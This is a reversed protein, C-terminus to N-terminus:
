KLRTIAIAQKSQIIQYVPIFPRVYKAIIKLCKNHFLLFKYIRIQLSDTKLALLFGTLRYLGKQVKDNFRQAASVFNRKRAKTNKLNYISFGSHAYIRLGTLLNLDGSGLLRFESGALKKFFGNFLQNLLFEGFLM